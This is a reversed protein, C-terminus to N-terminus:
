GAAPRPSADLEAGLLVALGELEVALRRGAHGDVLQGVGVRELDGLADLRAHVLQGLGEGLAHGPDDREVRRLEDGRGHVVDVLRQDLRGHEHEDDDEDEQLVPAGRQHRRRGHGDGDDAGEGGHRREAERHVQRRQEGDDEGDADDDVVGDDDDLAGGLVDLVPQRRVIGGDLRHVLQEARDEADRQHQHRHENGGREQGAQRALHVALEREDDGRRRQDRGDVGHRQLRRLAGQPQAGDRRGLLAVEEIAAEVADIVRELM